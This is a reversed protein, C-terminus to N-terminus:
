RITSTTRPRLLAHGHQGRLGLEVLRLGPARHGPAPVGGARQPHRHRQHRRLRPPQDALLARGGPRGPARSAGSRPRLRRGRGGRDVLDGRVMEFGDRGALRALRAEKLSPDYYDNLNDFGVVEDGRDLLAGSVHSGIFGAAGTVLVKMPSSAVRTANSRYPRRVGSPSPRLSLLPRLRCVTLRRRISGVRLDIGRRRHLSASVTSGFAFTSSGAGLVLGPLCRRSRTARPTMTTPRTTTLAMARNPSSSLDGDGVLEAVVATGVVSPGAGTSWRRGTAWRCSAPPRALGGRCRMWQRRSAAAM